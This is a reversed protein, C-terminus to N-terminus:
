PRPAGALTSPNSRTAGQRVVAPLTVFKFLALFISGVLIAGAWTQWDDPRFGYRGAAYGALFTPMGFVMLLNMYHPPGLRALTRRTDLEELAVLEAMTATTTQLGSEKCFMQVHEQHRRFLEAPDVGPVEIRLRNGEARNLGVGPCNTTVMGEDTLLTIIEFRIPEDPIVRYCNVRYRGDSTALCRAPHISERYWRIPNMFWCCEVKAGALQFGLEQFQRARRTYYLDDATPEATAPNETFEIHFRTFGLAFMVAPGLAWILAAAAGFILLADLVQKQLM